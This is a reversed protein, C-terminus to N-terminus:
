PGSVGDKYECGVRGRRGGCAANSSGAGRSATREDRNLMDVVAAEVRGGGFLFCTGCSGMGSSRGGRCSVSASIYLILLTKGSKSPMNLGVFFDGGAVVATLDGLRFGNLIHNKKVRLMIM